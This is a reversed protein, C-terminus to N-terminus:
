PLIRFVPKGGKLFFLLVRNLSSCGWEESATGGGTAPSGSEAALGIKTVVHQEELSPKSPKGFGMPSFLGGLSAGPLYCM